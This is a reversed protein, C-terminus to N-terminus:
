RDSGLPDYFFLNIPSSFDLGGAFVPVVRCGAAEFESVVGEYHGADGTVIHSRQLVLGTVDADKTLEIDKRRNYWNLYDELNEFMNSAMPHWIGIEPSQIPDAAKYELNKLGAVYNYAVNLLMNELNESNGAIWYQLSIVFNRADKARDSPLYKLVNPLTRVLKILSEGFEDGMNNRAKKVFDAIVSKSSGLQAMSFTGLKNLKM